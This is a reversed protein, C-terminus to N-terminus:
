SMGGESSVVSRGYTGDPLYKPIAISSVPHGHLHATAGCGPSLVPKTRHLVEPGVDRRNRM